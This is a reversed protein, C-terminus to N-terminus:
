KTANEKKMKDKVNKAEKEEKVRKEQIKIAKKRENEM